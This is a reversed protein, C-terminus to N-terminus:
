PSGSSRPRPVRANLGIQQVSSEIFQFDTGRFGPAKIILPVRVTADYIFYGHTDEEHDGLSEGHDGLLVILTDEYLGQEELDTILRGVLSDVYAVEGDYRSEKEL